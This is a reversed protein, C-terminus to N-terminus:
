PNTNEKQEDAVTEKKKPYFYGIIIGITMQITWAVTNIPFQLFYLPILATLIITESLIFYKNM